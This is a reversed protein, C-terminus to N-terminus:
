WSDYPKLHAVAKGSKDTILNFIEQYGNIEPYFLYFHIIRNEVPNSYVDYVLFDINAYKSFNLTFIKIQNTENSLEKNLM